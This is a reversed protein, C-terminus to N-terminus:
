RNVGVEESRSAELGIRPESIAGILSASGILSDSGTHLESLTAVPRRAEIMGMHKM